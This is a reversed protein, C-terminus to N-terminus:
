FSLKSLPESLLLNKLETISKIYFDANETMYNRIVPVDHAWAAACFHAGASHAMDLGPKLDDVMVTNEAKIGTKQLFDNIPWPSPKRKKEDDEWGYVADPMFGAKEKYFKLIDEAESHSIICIIGGAKRYDQLLELFGPFFDPLLTKTYKRWISFELDM